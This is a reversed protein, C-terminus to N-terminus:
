ALFVSDSSTFVSDARHILSRSESLSVHGAQVLRSAARLGTLFLPGKTGSYPHKRELWRGARYTGCGQCVNALAVQHGSAFILLVREHESM